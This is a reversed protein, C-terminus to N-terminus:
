VRSLVSGVPASPLCLSYAPLPCGPVCTWRVRVIYAVHAVCVMGRIGLARQLSASYHFVPLEVLITFVISLGLLSYPARLHTELYIFQACM